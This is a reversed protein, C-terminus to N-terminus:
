PSSPSGLFGSSPKRFPGRRTWTLQWKIVINIQNNINSPNGYNLELSQDSGSGEQVPGFNPGPNPAPASSSRHDLEPNPTCRFRASGNLVLDLGQVLLNAYLLRGKKKFLTRSSSCSANCTDGTLKRNLVRLSEKM